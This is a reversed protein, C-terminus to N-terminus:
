SQGAARHHKQNQMNEAHSVSRLNVLRNDGTDGNIHDIFAPETDHCMKYIIRHARYQRGNILGRLYGREHRATFARKGAFTNNWRDANQQATKRGRGLCPSDSFM